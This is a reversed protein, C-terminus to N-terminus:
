ELKLATAWVGGPGSAALRLWGGKASLGEWPAGPAPAPLPDFDFTANARDFLARAGAADTGGAVPPFRPDVARLGVVLTEAGEPRAAKWTWGDLTRAASAELPAPFRLRTAPDGLLAYMLMGDRKLRAVAGDSALKGDIDRLFSEVLFSNAKLADRQARLWLAGLRPERRGVAELAAIGAYYGPLPHVTTTAAIVAVPGGPLSFLTEALGPIPRAFNGADSALILLPSAPPGEAFAARAEDTGLGIETGAHTMASFRDPGAHGLITGLVAGARLERAFRAPQDEPWGCFPLRVDGTLLWPRIWGPISGQIANVLATAATIDVPGSSPEMRPAGAWVVLRLDAETAPRAEYALLKGVARAADERTRVPLRGVPIEPVLDGDLDGWLADSAYTEALEARWRFLARRKAPLSWAADEKGPEDDGVLLLFVPRRLRFPKVAGTLPDKRLIAPPVRLEPIGALAEDLPRDSVIVQFGDAQRKAALPEVAEILGPRGVALWLPGAPPEAAAAAGGLALLAVARRLVGDPVREKWRM